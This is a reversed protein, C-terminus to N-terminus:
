DADYINGDTGNEETENSHFVAYLSEFADANYTRLRGIRAEPDLNNEERFQHIAKDAPSLGLLKLRRDNSEKTKIKVVKRHIEEYTLFITEKEKMFIDIYTNVLVCSKAPDSNTLYVEFIRYIYYYLEYISSENMPTELNKLFQKIEVSSTVAHFGLGSSDPFMSCLTNFYHKATVKMLLESHTRSLLPLIVPSVKLTYAYGNKLLEPVLVSILSIFEKLYNLPISPVFFEDPITICRHLRTRVETMREVFDEPPRVVPDKQVMKFSQFSPAGDEYTPIFQKRVFTTEQTYKIPARVPYQDILKQIAEGQFSCKCTNVKHNGPRLPPKPQIEDQLLILINMPHVRETKIRTIEVPPLFTKWITHATRSGLKRERYYTLQQIAFKSSVTVISSMISKETLTYEDTFGNHKMIRFLKEQHKLVADIGDQINFTYVISAIKFMYGISLLIYLKSQKDMEQVIFNFYKTM